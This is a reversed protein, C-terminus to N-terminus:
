SIISKTKMPGRNVQDLPFVELEKVVALNSLTTLLVSQLALNSWAVM